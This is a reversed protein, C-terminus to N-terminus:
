HIDSISVKMPIKRCKEQCSQKVTNSQMARKPNSTKSPGLCCLLALSDWAWWRTRSPDAPWSLRRRRSCRPCTRRKWLYSCFSSLQLACSQITNSSLSFATILSATTSLTTNHHATVENGKSCSSGFTCHRVPLSNFCGAKDVLCRFSQLQLLKVRLRHSYLSKNPTYHVCNYPVFRM